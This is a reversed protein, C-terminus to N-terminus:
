IFKRKLDAEIIALVKNSSDLGTAMINIVDQHLLNVTFVDADSGFGEAILPRSRKGEIRTQGTYWYNAKYTIAEVDSTVEYGEVCDESYGTEQSTKSFARIAVFAEPWSGGYEDNIKCTLTKVPITM